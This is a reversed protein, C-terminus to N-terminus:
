TTAGRLKRRQLNRANRETRKQERLRHLAFAGDSGGAAHAACAAQAEALSGHTVPQGEVFRLAEGCQLFARYRPDHIRVEWMVAQWTIKYDGCKWEKRDAAPVGPLRVRKFQLGTNM